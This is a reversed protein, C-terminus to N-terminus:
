RPTALMGSGAWPLTPAMFREVKTTDIIIANGSAVAAQLFFSSGAL